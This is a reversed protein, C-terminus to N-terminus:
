QPPALRQRAVDILLPTRALLADSKGWRVEVWYVGVETVILAANVILNAGDEPKRFVPTVVVDNGMRAGSPTVVPIRIEQEGRAEDAKLIALVSFRIESPALATPLPEGDAIAVNITIKDVIRIASIAKDTEQLVRECVVVAVRPPHPQDTM